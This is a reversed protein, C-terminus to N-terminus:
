YSAIAARRENEYEQYARKGDPTRLVESKAVEISVGRSKAVEGAMTNFRDLASAGAKEISGGNVGARAFAPALGASAGKLIEVARARHAVNPIKEIAKLLAVKEEVTGAINPIEGARKAFAANENAENSKALEVAIDDARKVAAVVRADDSKRFETGDAAKYVVADSERAKRMTSERVVSESAAFGDRETEPLSKMFAKEADSMEARRRLTSNERELDAVRKTLEAAQKEDLAMADDGHPEGGGEPPVPTTNETQVPPEPAAADGDDKKFHQIQQERKVAEERTDFTGLKKGDHSYLCFKGDAEKVIRKALDADDASKKVESGCASCYKDGDAMPAGCGACKMNANKVVVTVNHVEGPEARKIIAVEAKEMAPSDVASLAGIRLKTTIKRTKESM